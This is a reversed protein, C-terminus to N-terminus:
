NIKIPEGFDFNRDSCKGLLTAYYRPHAGFGPRVVKINRKTFIDGKKIKESAYISRRFQINLKEKESLDFSINGLSKWANQCETVLSKMEVPDASFSADVGGLSKDSTFHKEIITAGLAVSAVSVGIGMSHDSLGIECCFKQRMYPISLLNSDGVDAPYDSTCKLLALETCGAARATDVAEDIEDESATGSSIILPKGTSAVKRILPIHNNEFSAIKYAPTNLDEMFEVSTEDFVSSFCTLGYKSCELMIDKVWDWDTYADRYLDYLYRNSWLSDPNIIKFDDKKSNLTITDPTYTQLKLADVGCAAASKIISLAHDFSQNHNGSMEAIIFPKKSQNIARQSIFFPEM